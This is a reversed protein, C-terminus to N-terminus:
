GWVGRNTEYRQASHACAQQGPFQLLAVALVRATELQVALAERRPLVALRAAAVAGVAEVIPHPGPPPHLPAAALRGQGLKIVEAESGGLGAATTAGGETGKTPMAKESKRACAAAGHAHTHAM